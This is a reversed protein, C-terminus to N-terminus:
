PRWRKVLHFDCMASSRQEVRGDARWRTDTSNRGDAKHIHVMVEHTLIRIDAEFDKPMRSIFDGLDALIYLLDIMPWRNRYRFEEAAHGRLAELLYADVAEKSVFKYRDIRISNALDPNVQESVPLPADAQPDVALRFPVCWSSASFPKVLTLTVGDGCFATVAGDHTWVIQPMPKMQTEPARISVLEVVLEAKARGPFQSQVLAAHFTDSHDMVLARRHAIFRRVGTVANRFDKESWGGRQSKDLKRWQDCLNRSARNVDKEADALATVPVEPALREVERDEEDLM